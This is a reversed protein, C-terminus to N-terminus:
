RLAEMFDSGPAPGGFLRRDISNAPAFILTMQHHRKLDENSVVQDMPVYYFGKLGYLNADRLGRGRLWCYTGGYTCVILLIAVFALGVLLRFIPLSRERTGMEEPLKVRRM